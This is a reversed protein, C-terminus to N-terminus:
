DEDEFTSTKNKVKIYSPPPLLGFRFINILNPAIEIKDLYLYVRIIENMSLKWIKDTPTFTYNSIVSVLDNIIEYIYNNIKKYEIENLNLKHKIYSEIENESINKLGEKIPDVQQKFDKFKNLKNIPDLEFKQNFTKEYKEYIKKANSNDKKLGCFKCESKDFVHLYNVPCYKPAIKEFLELTDVSTGYIEDHKSKVKIENKINDIIGQIFDFNVDDLISVENITNFRDLENNAKINKIEEISQSNFVSNVMDGLDIIKEQTGSLLKIFMDINGFLKDNQMLKNMKDEDWGVMTCNDAIIAILKKVNPTSKNIINKDILENIIKYVYLSVIAAAKNEYNPDEQQVFSYIVATFMNYIILFTADDDSSDSCEILRYALEAISPPINTSDDDTFNIMSDGCYKCQGNLCCEKSIQYLSKGSLTMYVHKCMLPLKTKKGDDTEVDLLYFGTKDDLELKNKIDKFYYNIHRIIEVVDKPLVMVKFNHKVKSTNLTTEKIELVKNDNTHSRALQYKFFMTYSDVFKAFWDSIKTPTKDTPQQVFYNIEDILNPYKSILVSKFDHYSLFSHHTNIRNNIEGIIDVNTKNLLNPYWIEENNKINTDTKYYETTAYSIQGSPQISIKIDQDQINESIPKDEKHKSNIYKAQIYSDSSLNNIFKMEIEGPKYVFLKQRFDNHKKAVQNIEAAGKLKPKNNRIEPDIDWVNDLTNNDINNYTNNDINNDVNNDINNDVNNDINNDVNNDVNDNINNNNTDIETNTEIIDLGDKVIIPKEPKDFIPDNNKYNPNEITKELDDLHQEIAKEYDVEDFLESNLVDDYNNRFNYNNM